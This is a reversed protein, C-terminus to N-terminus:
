TWLSQGSMGSSCPMKVSGMPEEIVDEFVVADGDNITGVPKGNEAIHTNAKDGNCVCQACHM